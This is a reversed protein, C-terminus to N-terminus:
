ASHRSALYHIMLGMGWGMMPFIVWIFQPTFNLNVFVLLSIVCLYVLRHISFGKKAEEVNGANFGQENNM